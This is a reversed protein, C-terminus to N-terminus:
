EIKGQNTVQQEIKKLIERLLYDCFANIKDYDSEEMHQKLFDQVLFTATQVLSPDPEWTQHDIMTELVKHPTRSATEQLLASWSEIAPKLEEPFTEGENKTKIEVQQSANKPLPLAINMKEQSEPHILTLLALIFSSPINKAIMQAILLVYRDNKKHALFGTIIGALGDDKQKQQQEQARIQTIAKQAAKRQERFQEKAAESAGESAGGDGGGLIDSFSEESM